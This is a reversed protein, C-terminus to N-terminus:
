RLEILILQKKNFIRPICIHNSLGRSVILKNEYLGSTYKPFIGQGPAFIGRGFIRWQGGHAHGSIILDANKNKLHRPFYEPHHSLLLKYGEAKFFGDLASLQPPPTVKFRGQISEPTYGSSLGGIKIGRFETFENDLLVAGTARLIHRVDGGQKVEHNGVSCFTPFLKSADRLFDFGREGENATHIVDGPCLIADPSLQKLTELLETYDDSHLDAVVALRLPNQLGAKFSFRTLETM